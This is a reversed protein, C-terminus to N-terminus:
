TQKIQYCLGTEADSNLDEQERNESEKHPESEKNAKTKEEQKRQTNKNPARERPNPPSHSPVNAKRFGVEPPLM